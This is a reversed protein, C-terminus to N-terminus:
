NWFAEEYANRVLGPAGSEPSGKARTRAIEAALLHALDRLLREGTPRTADGLHHHVVDFRTTARYAIQDFEM